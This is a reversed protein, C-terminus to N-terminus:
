RGCRGPPLLKELEEADGEADPHRINVFGHIAMLRGKLFHGPDAPCLGQRHAPSFVIHDDGRVGDHDAFAPHQALGMRLFLGFGHEPEKGAPVM